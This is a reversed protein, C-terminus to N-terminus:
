RNILYKCLRNIYLLRNRGNRLVAVVLDDDADSGGVWAPFDSFNVVAQVVFRTRVVFSFKYYVFRFKLFQINSIKPFKRRSSSCHTKISAFYIYVKVESGMVNGM